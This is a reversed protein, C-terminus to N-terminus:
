KYLAAVENAARMGEVAAGEIYGQFDQSYHEGAFHIPGM